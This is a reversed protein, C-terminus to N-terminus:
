GCPSYGCSEAMAMPSPYASVDVSTQYLACSAAVIEPCDGTAPLEIREECGLM